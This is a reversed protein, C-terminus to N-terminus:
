YVSTCKKCNEADGGHGISSDVVRLWLGHGSGSIPGWLHFVKESELLCAVSIFQLVQLDLLPSRHTNPDLHIVLPAM